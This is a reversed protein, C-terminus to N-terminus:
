NNLYTKENGTYDVPQENPDKRLSANGSLNANLAVAGVSKGRAEQLYFYLGEVDPM